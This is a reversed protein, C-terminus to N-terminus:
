GEQRDEFPTLLDSVDVDWKMSELIRNALAAYNSRPLVGQQRYITGTDEWSHDVAFGSVRWESSTGTKDAREIRAEPKEKEPIRDPKRNEQEYLYEVLAIRDGIFTPSETGSSWVMYLDQDPDIKVVTSGM